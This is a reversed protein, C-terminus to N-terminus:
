LLVSRICSLHGGLITSLYSVIETKSLHLSIHLARTVTTLGSDSGYVACTDLNSLNNVYCREWM